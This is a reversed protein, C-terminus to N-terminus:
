KPPQGTLKSIIKKGNCLDCTESELTPPILLSGSGLCEPCLQWEHLVPQEVMPCEELIKIIERGKDLCIHMEEWRDGDYDHKHLLIDTAETLKKLVDVLPFPEGIRIIKDLLEKDAKM